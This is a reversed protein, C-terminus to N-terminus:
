SKPPDKDTRPRELMVEALEQLSRGSSVDEVDEAVRLATMMAAVLKAGRRIQETPGVELLFRIMREAETRSETRDARGLGGILEGVDSSLRVTLAEDLATREADDSCRQRIEDWSVPRDNARDLIYQLAIVDMEDETM